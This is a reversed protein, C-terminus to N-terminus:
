TRHSKVNSTAVLQACPILRIAIIRLFQWLDLSKSKGDIPMFCKRTLLNRITITVGRPKGYATNRVTARPVVSLRTQGVFFICHLPLRMTWWAALELFTSENLTVTIKDGRLLHCVHNDRLSSPQIIFYFLQTTVRSDIKSKNFKIIFEAIM